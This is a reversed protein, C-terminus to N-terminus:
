AHDGTTTTAPAGAPLVALLEYGGDPLPGTRLTGSMLEVRKRLGLLGSGGTGPAVEAARDAASNRVTIRVEDGLHHLRVGVVAGPAHGRANTLAEQVVRRAARGIM